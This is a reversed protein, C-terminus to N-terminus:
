PAEFVLAFEALKDGEGDLLVLMDQGFAYLAAADLTHMMAMELDQGPGICGMQTMFFRGADVVGDRLTMRGQMLNCGPSASFDGGAAIRLDIAEPARDALDLADGHRDVIETIRWAGAFPIPDSEPFVEIDEIPMVPPVPPEVADLADQLVLRGIGSPARSAVTDRIFAEAMGFASSAHPAPPAFAAPGRQIIVMDAQAASTAITAALVACLTLPRM